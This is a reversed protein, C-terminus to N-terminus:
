FSRHLSKQLNPAEAGNNQMRIQCFGNRLRVVLTAAGNRLRQVANTRSGFGSFQMQGAESAASSARCLVTSHLIELLNERMEPLAM